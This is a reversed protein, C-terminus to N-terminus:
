AQKFLQSNNKKVNQTIMLDELTAVTEGLLFEFSELLKKLELDQVRCLVYNIHDPDVGFKDYIYDFCRNRVIIRLDRFNKIKDLKPVLNKFDTNLFQLQAILMERVGDIAPYEEQGTKLFDISYPFYDALVVLDDDNRKIHFDISASWNQKDIELFELALDAAQEWVSLIKESFEQHLKIYNDVDDLYKKREEKNIKKEGSTFPSLYAKVAQFVETMTASPYHGEVKELNVKSLAEKFEELDKTPVRSLLNPKSNKGLYYFGLGLAGLGAIIGGLLTLNKKSTMINV